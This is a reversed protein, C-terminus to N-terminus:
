HLFRNLQGLVKEPKKQIECDWLRLLKWGLKRLKILHQRDRRRNGLLKPEWYALRTKPMTGDRCKPHLHWFCGHVFIAQKRSRFVIDPRGPLEKAHTRYSRYGLSRLMQRVRIEPKTGRSIIRSMVESRKVKPWIDM